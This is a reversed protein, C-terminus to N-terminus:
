NRGQTAADVAGVVGAVWAMECAISAVDAPELSDADAEAWVAKLATLYDGFAADLRDRAESAGFVEVIADVYAQFREAAREGVRAEGAHETLTSAYADYLWILRQEAAPTPFIASLAARFDALAIAFGDADDSAAPQARFETM